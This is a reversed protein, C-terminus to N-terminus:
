SIKLHLGKVPSSNVNVENQQKPIWTDADSYYMYMYIYYMYMYLSVESIHVGQSWPLLTWMLPHECKLPRKMIYFICMPGPFQTWMLLHECRQPTWLSLNWQLHLCPRLWSKSLTHRFNAISFSKPTWIRSPYWLVSLNWGYIHIFKDFYPM